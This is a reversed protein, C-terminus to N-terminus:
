YSYICARNLPHVPTIGVQQPRWDQKDSSTPKPSGRTPHLQHWAISLDGRNMYSVVGCETALEVDLMLMIQESLSVHMAYAGNDTRTCFTSPCTLSVLPILDPLVTLHFDKARVVQSGSNSLDLGFIHEGPPLYKLSLAPGRQNSVLAGSVDPPVIWRYRLESTPGSNTSQYADLTVNDCSRASVYTPGNVVATLSNTPAQKTVPEAKCSESANQAVVLNQVNFKAKTEGHLAVIAHSGLVAVVCGSGRSNVLLVHEGVAVTYECLLNPRLLRKTQLPCDVACGGDTYVM